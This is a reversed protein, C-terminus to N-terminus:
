AKIGLRKRYDLPSMGEHRRFLRSFNSTDDIGVRQAVEGVGLHTRRLLEKAMDIRIRGVYETFSMDFKRQLWHTIATPHQGLEAAIDKLLVKGPLREM